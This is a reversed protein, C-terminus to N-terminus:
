CICVQLIIMQTMLQSRLLKLDQLWFAVYFLSLFNNVFELVILKNVRHREYQSQTRHNEKDTLWTALKDYQVTVVALLVAYIISPLYLIYSDASYIDKLYDDIWFQSIAGTGLIIICFIMIPVSIFYMQLLTKWKEYQPTLKGTVPDRGIKGYFGIRPSDLNTMSITGWRFAMEHSKRKWRELFIKMWIVYFACFFPVMEYSFFYQCFGLITPVVLAMTYFGSILNLEGNTMHPQNCSFYM